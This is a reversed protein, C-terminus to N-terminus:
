LCSCVYVSVSAAAATTCASTSHRPFSAVRNPVLPRALVGVPHLCVRLPVWVLLTVVRFFLGLSSMEQFCAVWSCRRLDHALRLVQKM